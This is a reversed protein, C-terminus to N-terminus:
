GKKELKEKLVEIGKQVQNDYQIDYNETDESQYEYEVHVDPKIGKKHIYDGSPTYYKATTIKVASGDDLPLITQVIGKGFSTTGILTGYEFDRIAGAFIESASASNGNILVAIPLKMQHEEDSDYDNRNGMKDKTYVVTGEPLIKDLIGVVSTVLGGPNDRLDVLMAKMGRKNLYDVDTQFQEETVDTFETIQIYGIDGDLMQSTVTPVEISDLEVDFELPKKSGQRSIQIHTKSEESGRIHSVLETLDMSAADLDDVKLIIDGDRIGAKQAPSGKYARMVTVQKTDPDQSLVAGIGEYTGNNSEKLSQYEEQTYYQSYPDNLGELIGKYMGNILTEQDVDEYFYSAIIETLSEAKEKVTGDFTEETIVVENKSKRYVTTLVGMGAVMIVVAVLFGAVFGRQYRSWVKKRKKVKQDQSEQIEAEQNEAENVTENKEEQVAQEKEEKMSWLGKKETSEDRKVGINKRFRIKDEQQKKYCLLFM